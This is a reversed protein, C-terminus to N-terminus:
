RAFLLTPNVARNRYRLEFHLHTGTCWGTCGAVGIRQGVSLQEGIRVLPRALHAYLASYRDGLNVLVVNGYGEYGPLYGEGVVRGASAARVTSSRLIGIDLGPHWRSGDRGFPSTVTGLAPWAFALQRAGERTYASASAPVVLGVLICCLVARV